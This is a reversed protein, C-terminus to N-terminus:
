NEDKTEKKPRTPHVGGGLWKGTAHWIEYFYLWESIWPMITNAILKDSRWSDEGPLFLCLREQSYMHPIDVGSRKILVPNIVWVKPFEGLEYVIKVNYTESLPTPKLLGIWVLKRRDIRCVETTPYNQNIAAQQHPLPIKKIKFKM